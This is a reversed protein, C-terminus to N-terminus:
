LVHELVRISVNTGLVFTILLVIWTQLVNRNVVLTLTETTSMSAHVYETEVNLMLDAHHHTAHIQLYKM